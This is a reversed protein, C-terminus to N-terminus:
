RNFDSGHTADTDEEKKIDEGCLRIHKSERIDSPLKIGGDCATTDEIPVIAETGNPIRAGTMIRIGFGSELVESSNDGALITHTVKSFQYTPIRNQKKYYEENLRKLDDESINEIFEELSM